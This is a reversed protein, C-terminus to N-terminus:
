EKLGTRLGSALQILAILTCVLFTTDWIVNVTGKLHALALLYVLVYIMAGAALLGACMALGISSHSCSLPPM